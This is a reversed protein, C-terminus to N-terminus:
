NRGDREKSGDLLKYAPLYVEENCGIKYLLSPNKITNNISGLSTYGQDYLDCYPVQFYLLYDWIDSYNWDLLPSIRMVQPWSSDTMQCVNLHESYPDSRRTGMLCAKLHPRDELFIELGEKVGKTITVIELNHYNSILDIFSNVEHFPNLSQIYMCILREKFEPYHRKLVCLVLHLLVTCDKGGNFSLFINEPKYQKFCAEICEIAKHIHYFCNKNYINALFYVEKTLQNGYKKKIKKQYEILLKLDFSKVELIQDENEKNCNIQLCNCKNSNNLEIDCDKFYFQKVFSIKYNFGEIYERLINEFVLKLNPEQIIFLRGLYIVPSLKISNDYELIKAIKPVMVGELSTNRENISQVLVLETNFVNCVSNLTDKLTYDIIILFDNQKLGHEVEYSITNPDREITTVKSVTYHLRNLQESLYKVDCDLASVNLDNLILTSISRSM